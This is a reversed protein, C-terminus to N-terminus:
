PMKIAMDIVYRPGVGATFIESAGKKVLVELVDRVDKLGHRHNGLEARTEKLDGPLFGHGPIFRDAGPKEAAEITRIWDAGYGSSIYPFEDYYNSLEM